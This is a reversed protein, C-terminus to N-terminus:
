SKGAGGGTKLDAVYFSGYTHVRDVSHLRDTLATDYALMDGVKRKKGGVNVQIPDVYQVKIGGSRFIVRCGTAARDVIAQWESELWARRFTSLWDMHDLLVYRSIRADTNRLFNEVSSTHIEIRNVVRKLREFNAQKLYEPCCEQTYQGYLYVRWFYNDQIPLRAFVTEVCEQMFESIGDGFYHEVQERQQRPVGLMSLATDSGLVKKMFGTWFAKRISRDYIRRQDDVTKAAFLEDIDPRVKAVKDVYYNCFRAITGSSGRFYFSRKGQFFSAHKKWYKFAWPSLDRALVDRLVHKFGKLHGRGFLAFFDDYSLNKAAAIKLELLANQRPNMDIAFVKRPECLAYDLANCGASTIVMVTDDPGIRLAERDLRPDEWCTNYVLHKEHVLSFCKSSFWDAIPRDKIDPANQRGKDVTAAFTM